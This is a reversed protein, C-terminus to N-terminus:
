ALLLGLLSFKFWCVSSPYDRWYEQGPLAKNASYVADGDTQLEHVVFNYYPSVCSTMKIIM